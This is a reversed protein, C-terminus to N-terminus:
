DTVEHLADLYRGWGSPSQWEQASEVATGEGWENFTTVLQWAARSRRMERIAREWRHVDRSLYPDTPAGPAAHWFGPSIAFAGASVTGAAVESTPKAPEYQHWGDPQAGCQRYGHFVKFVLHFRHEPDAAHWRDLVACDDDASYVFLVPRGSVRLFNPSTAYRTAVYDLDARVADAAPDAGGENEYYLGIRFDPDVAAAAALLAPMRTQEAKEGPGWWSVIAAQIGGYRMAAVQGRITAVDGSNYLGASPTYRTYPSTGHQRWAEPFWQYYFAARVPFTLEPLPPGTPVTPNPPASPTLPSVTASPPSPSSPASPAPAACSAFVPLTAVVIAGSIMARVARM